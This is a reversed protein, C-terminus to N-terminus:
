LRLTLSTTSCSRSVQCNLQKFVRTHDWKGKNNMVRLRSYQTTIMYLAPEGRLQIFQTGKSEFGLHQEGKKIVCKVGQQSLVNNNINHILVFKWIEMGLCVDTSNIRFNKNGDRADISDIINWSGKNVM